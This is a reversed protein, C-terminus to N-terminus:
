VGGGAGMAVMQMQVFVSSHLRAVCEHWSPASQLALADVLACAVGQRGRPMASSYQVQWHANSAWRDMAGDFGQDLHPASPGMGASRLLGTLTSNKDWQVVSSSAQAARDSLPVQAPSGTHQTCSQAANM